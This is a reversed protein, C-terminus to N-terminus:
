MGSSSGYITDFAYVESVTKSQSLQALISLCEAASKRVHQNANQLAVLLAPLITQFDVWHSTTRHAELFAMAHRLAAHRLHDQVENGDIGDALWIGALFALADDRLNIFLIRLLHTSLLPLSTSSNGLQYVARMLHVYRTNADDPIIQPSYYTMYSVCEVIQSIVYRSM